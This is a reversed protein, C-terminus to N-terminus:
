WTSPITEGKAKATARIAERISNPPPNRRAKGQASGQLNNSAVKAQQSTETTTAAVQLAKRQADEAKKQIAPLHRATAWEYAAALDRPTQGSNMAFLMLQFVEPDRLYPHKPQGTDDVANEFAQIQQVVYQQQAQTQQQQQGMLHQELGQLRQLLPNVMQTVTPDVYPASQVAANLDAGTAQAIAQIFKGADKPKYISALWALTSDPDRALAQAVAMQQALGQQLTMGQMEWVQRAQQLTDHIPAYGQAFQRLQGVENAQKGWDTYLKNLENGAHKWHEGSNPDTAWTRLARQGEKSWRKAWAPAENWGNLPDDNDAAAGDTVTTTSATEQKEPKSTGRSVSEPKEKASGSESAKSSLEADTRAIVERMTPATDSM